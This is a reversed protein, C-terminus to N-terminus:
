TQDLGPEAAEHRGCANCLCPEGGDGVFATPVNHKALACCLNLKKGGARGTSERVPARSNIKLAQAGFPYCLSLDQVDTLCSTRRPSCSQPRPESLVQSMSAPLRYPVPAAPEDPLQLVGGIQHEAPPRRSAFHWSHDLPTHELLEAILESAQRERVESDSWGFRGDM